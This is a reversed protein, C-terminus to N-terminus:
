TRRGRRMGSRGPPGPAAPTRPPCSAPRRTPLSPARCTRARTSRPTRGRLGSKARRETFAGDGGSESAASGYPTSWISPCGPPPTQGRASRSRAPGRRGRTGTPSTRARPRPNPVFRATSSYPRLQKIKFTTVGSFRERISAGINSIRVMPTSRRGGLERRGGPRRTPAPAHPRHDGHAYRLRHPSRAVM